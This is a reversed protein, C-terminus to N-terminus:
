WPPGNGCRRCVCTGSDGNTCYGTACNQVQCSAICAGRGAYCSLSEVQAVQIIVILFVAFLIKLM